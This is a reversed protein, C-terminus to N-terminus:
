RDSSNDLKRTTLLLSRSAQLSRNSALMAWAEALMSELQVESAEM